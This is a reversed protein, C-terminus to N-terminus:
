TGEQINNANQCRMNFQRSAALKLTEDILVVTPGNLDLGVSVRCGPQVAFEREGDLAIMAPLQEITIADDPVIVRWEVIGVNAMFGPAIPAIVRDAADPSLVMHLAQNNALNAGLAAGISSLGLAGSKAQTLFLHRLSNGAWIAKAGADISDLVALDVLAVDQVTGELQLTLFPATVCAERAQVVGAMRAAIAMGILTGEVRQPFVNNTGTSIPILPVKGCHKAVVRSTGDGGLVVLYDVGREVMAQVCRETDLATGLLVPLDVLELDTNNLRGACREIVRRGMHSPDPMMLVHQSSLADMGLLMREILNIKERNGVLQGSAVLRRLDKGSAPNAIIGVVGM